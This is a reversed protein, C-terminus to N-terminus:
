YRDETILFAASRALVLVLDPKEAQMQDFFLRNRVDAVAVADVWVDKVLPLLQKKLVACGSKRLRALSTFITM